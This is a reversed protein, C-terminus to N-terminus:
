VHYKRRCSQGHLYICNPSSGARSRYECVLNCLTLVWLVIHFHKVESSLPSSRSAEYKTAGM